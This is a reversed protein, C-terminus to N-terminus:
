ETPQILSFVTVFATIAFGTASAALIPPVARDLTQAYLGFWELAVLGSWFVALVSAILYILWYDSISITERYNQLAYWAAVAFLVAAAADVAGIVTFAM